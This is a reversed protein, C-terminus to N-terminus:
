PTVEVLTIEPVAGFRYNLLSMGIGRNIYIASGDDKEYKGAIYKQGGQPAIRERYAKLPINIQLGHTHGSLQLGIGSVSDAYDPEHCLLLNFADGRVLGQVDPKGWTLDDAGIVNINADLMESQNKLVTWGANEMIEPYVNMAGGGLDHNGFVAYKKAQPLQKLSLLETLLAEDGEKYASYNDFLDGLFVVMDPKLEAARRLVEAVREAGCERGIHMDAIVAISVPMRVRPDSVTLHEVRLMRPEIWRAYCYLGGCLVAVALLVAALKCLPHKKGQYPRYGMAARHKSKPM